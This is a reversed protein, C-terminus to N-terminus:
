IIERKYSSLINPIVKDAMWYNLNVTLHIKDVTTKMHISINYVWPFLIKNTVKTQTFDEM